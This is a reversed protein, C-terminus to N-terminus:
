VEILSFTLNMLKGHARGPIWQVIDMNRDGAYYTGETYEMTQANYVKAQLQKMGDVLPATDIATLVDAVDQPDVNTYGIDYDWTTRVYQNWMKGKEDRGSKSTVIDREHPTCKMPNPMATLTGNVKIYLLVDPTAPM